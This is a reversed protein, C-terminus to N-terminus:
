TIPCARIFNRHLHGVLIPSVDFRSGLLVFEETEVRGIVSIRNSRHAATPHVTEIGNEGGQKQLRNFTGDWVGVTQWRVHCGLIGGGVVQRNGFLQELFMMLLNGGADHFRKNLTCRADYRMRRAKETADFSEASLVVDQQNGIFNGYTESPGPCEEGTLLFPDFGIKEAEPFSESCAIQWHGGGEGLFSDPVGKEARIRVVVGKKVAM